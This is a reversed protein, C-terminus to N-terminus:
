RGVRLAEQVVEDIMGVNALRVLNEEGSGLGEVADLAEVAKSSLKLRGESSIAFASTSIRTIKLPPEDEERENATSDTGHNGNTTTLPPLPLILGTKEHIHDCLGVLFSTTTNAATASSRGNTAKATPAALLQHLTESPVDIDMSRLGKAIEPGNPHAINTALTIKLNGITDRLISETFQLSRVPQLSGYLFTIYQQLTQQLLTAPLKLPTVTVNFTNELFAVFHRSLSANSKMLLLPLPNTNKDKRSSKTSKPQVSQQTTAAYFVFKYTAKDYTLMAMVGEVPVDNSGMSQYSDMEDGDDDRGRKRKQGAYRKLPVWNCGRLGGIKEREEENEYAPRKNNVYDQLDREYGRLAGQQCLVLDRFRASPESVAYLTYSTDYLTSNM